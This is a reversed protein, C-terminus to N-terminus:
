KRQLGGGLKIAAKISNGTNFEPQGWSSLTQIGLTKGHIFKM